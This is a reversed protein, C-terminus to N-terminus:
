PWVMGEIGEYENRPKHIALTSVKWEGSEEQVLRFEVIIYGGGIMEGADDIAQTMVALDYFGEIAWLIIPDGITTYNDVAWQALAGDGRKEEITQLMAFWNETYIDPNRESTALGTVQEGIFEDVILRAEQPLGSEIMSVRPQAIDGEDSEWTRKSNALVKAMRWEDDVKWMRLEVQGYGLRNGSKELEYQYAVDRINEKQWLVIPGGVFVPDPAGGALGHSPLIRYNDEKNFWEWFVETYLEENLANRFDVLDNSNGTLPYDLLNEAVARSAEEFTKIHTEETTLTEIAEGAGPEWFRTSIIAVVVIIALVIFLVRTISIEITRDQKM